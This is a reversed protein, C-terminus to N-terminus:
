VYYLFRSNLLSEETTNNPSNRGSNIRFTRVRNYHYQTTSCACSFLYRIKYM